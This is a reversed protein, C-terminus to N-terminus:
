KLFAWSTPSLCFPCLCTYVVLMADSASEQSMDSNVGTTLMFLELKEIVAMLERARM